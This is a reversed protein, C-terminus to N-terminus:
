GIPYVRMPHTNYWLPLQTDFQAIRGNLWMERLMTQRATFFIDFVPKPKVDGIEDELSVWRNLAHSEM